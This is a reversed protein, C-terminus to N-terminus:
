RINYETPDVHLAEQSAEKILFITRRDSFYSGIAEPWVGQALMNVFRNYAWLFADATTASPAAACYKYYKARNGDMGPMTGKPISNVIHMIQGKKFNHSAPLDVLPQTM